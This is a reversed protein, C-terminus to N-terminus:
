QLAVVRHPMARGFRRRPALILIKVGGIHVGGLLQRLCCPLCPHLGKHVNGRWRQIKIELVVVVDGFGIQGGRKGVM